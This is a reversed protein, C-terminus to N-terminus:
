METHHPGSIGFPVRCAPSADNCLQQFAVTEAALVSVMLGAWHEAVWCRLLVRLCLPLWRRRSRRQSLGFIPRAQLCALMSCGLLAPCDFVMHHEDNVEGSLCRVM